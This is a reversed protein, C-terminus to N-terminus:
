VRSDDARRDFAAKKADFNAPINMQGNAFMEVPAPVTDMPYVEGTRPPRSSSDSDLPWQVPNKQGQIAGAGGRARSSLKMHRFVRCAMACEVAVNTSNILVHFVAPITPALILGINVLNFL